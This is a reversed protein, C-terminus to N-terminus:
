MSLCIGMIMIGQDNAYKKLAYWQKFFYYQLFEQYNIEKEFPLLEFSQHKPFEKYEEHWETWPKGENTLKFTRFLAYGEVWKNNEVFQKFDDNFEFRKYALRLLDEKHARVAEYEVTEAQKNFTKLEGKELLGDKVLDELDIYLEDGAYSSYPQYPSNGYALPNLPLIQWIKVDSKKLQDVFTYANKGFDGVGYSSPLASIPCLIGAKM